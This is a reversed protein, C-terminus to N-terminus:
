CRLGRFLNSPLMYSVQDDYGTFPIRTGGLRQSLVVNAAKLDLAVREFADNDSSVGTKYTKWAASLVQHSFSVVQFVNAAISVAAIAEM